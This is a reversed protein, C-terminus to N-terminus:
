SCATIECSESDGRYLRHSHIYEEVATPVLYRISRGAQVRDRIETSSIEINKKPIVQIKAHFRDKLRDIEDQLGAASVADERTEVLITCSDFIAQPDKWLSMLVLTDAGVIYYLEEDPRERHLEWLTQSTYSNGPRKTELDTVNLFPNGAAALCTMEYRLQPPTVKQDKKFYSCGTPVLLVEDLGLADRANEATILHGLHIPDFTGGLIGTKKM